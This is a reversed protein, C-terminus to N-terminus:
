SAADDSLGARRSGDGAGTKDDTLPVLRYAYGDARQLLRCARWRVPDFPGLCFSGSARVVVPGTTEAEAVFGRPLGGGVRVRVAAHVLDGSRLGHVTKGRMLYGRPFGHADTNTRQYRGRGLATIVHVMRGAWRLATPTTAGVCAADTAPGRPLGRQARNWKTRAATGAELRLGTEALLRWVAWRTANVAAPGRLPTQLRDAVTACGKVRAAALPSRARKLSRAWEEPLLSGKAENCTRCALALNSVRDSGGRSSPVVHDINLVRDGSLGGCYACRHGFKELLYERVEYGRLTGRQYEAGSIEPDVLAQTDYRGVQVSAASVPAWRCSRAVWARTHDVRSRLTPALRPERAGLGVPADGAEACPRCRKHGHRANGGCVVCPEPHRNDFRPARYRLNASRRRRRYGARRLMKAHIGPKHAVEAAFVVTGAGPTDERVLAVGTAKTAPAVKLRLPQLVSEEATRDRLRITFPRLRHVVARGRQLLIRARRESCPMLPKKRRDLVFVM